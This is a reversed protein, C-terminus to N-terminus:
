ARLGKETSSTKLDDSQTVKRKRNRLQQVNGIEFGMRLLKMHQNKPPEGAGNSTERM